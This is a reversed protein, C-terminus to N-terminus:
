YILCYCFKGLIQYRASMVMLIWLQRLPTAIECYYVNYFGAQNKRSKNCIFSIKSAPCPPIYRYGWVSPLSHYSSPSNMLELGAQAVFCSRRPPTPPLLTKQTKNTQKIQLVPARVCPRVKLWEVVGIKKLNKKTTWKNRHAYM